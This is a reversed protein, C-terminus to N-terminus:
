HVVVGSQRELVALKRRAERLDGQLAEVHDLTENADRNMERFQEALKRLEPSYDTVSFEPTLALEPLADRAAEATEKARLLVIYTRELAGELEAVRERAEYLREETTFSVPTCSRSEVHRRTM